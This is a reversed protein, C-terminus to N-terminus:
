QGVTTIRGALHEFWPGILHGFATTGLLVILAIAAMMLGYEVVDQGGEEAVFEGAWIAICNAFRHGASQDPLPLVV